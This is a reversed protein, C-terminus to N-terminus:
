DEIGAPDTEDSTKRVGGGGVGEGGFLFLPRGALSFCGDDIKSVKDGGFRLLPLGCLDGDPIGGGFFDLPLGLFFM